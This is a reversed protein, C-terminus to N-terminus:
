LMYSGLCEPCVPLDGSNSLAEQDQAQSRAPSGAQSGDAAEGKPVNSWCTSSQNEDDRGSTRDNMEHAGSGGGAEHLYHRRCLVASVVFCVQNRLNFRLM